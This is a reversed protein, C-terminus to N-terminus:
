RRLVKLVSRPVVMSDRLANPSFYRLKPAQTEFTARALCSAYGALDREPAPRTPATGVPRRASQAVDLALGLRPAVAAGRNEPRM